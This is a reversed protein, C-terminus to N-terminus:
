LGMSVLVVMVSCGSLLLEGIVTVFAVRVFVMVLVTVVVVGCYGILVVVVM